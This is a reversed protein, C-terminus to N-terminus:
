RAGREKNKKKNQYNEEYWNEFKNWEEENMTVDEIFIPKCRQHLKSYEEEWKKIDEIPRIDKIGQEWEKAKGHIDLYHELADYKKNGIQKRLREYDQIMSM